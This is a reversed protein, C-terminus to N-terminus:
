YGLPNTMSVQRILDRVQWSVTTRGGHPVERYAQIFGPANPGWDSRSSPHTRLLSLNSAGGCLVFLLSFSKVGAAGKM